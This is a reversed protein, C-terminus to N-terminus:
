AKLPSQDRGTARLLWEGLCDHAAPTALSFIAPGLHLARLEEGNNLALAKAQRPNPLVADPARYMAHAAHVAAAVDHLTGLRDEAVLLFCCPDLAEVVHLMFHKENLPTFLGGATEVLSLAERHARAHGEVWTRIDAALLPRALQRAILHPSVAERASFYPPIPSHGAAAALRESDCDGPLCGSEIPKLGLVSHGSQRLWRLLSASVYTKGIDTGTGTIVIRSSGSLTM